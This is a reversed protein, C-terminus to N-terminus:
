DTPYMQDTYDVKVKPVFPKKNKYKQAQKHAGTVGAQMARRIEKRREPTAWKFGRDPHQPSNMAATHLWSGKPAQLAKDFYDKSHFFAGGKLNPRLDGRVWQQIGAGETIIENIKM